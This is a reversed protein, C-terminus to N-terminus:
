FPATGAGIGAAPAVARSAVPALVRVTGAGIGAVPAAARATGSSPAVSVAPAMVRRQRAAAPITYSGDGMLVPLIATSWFRLADQIIPDLFSRDYRDEIATVRENM